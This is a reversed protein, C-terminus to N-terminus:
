HRKNFDGFFSVLRAGRAGGGAQARQWRELDAIRRVWLLNTEHIEKKLGEFRALLDQKLQNLDDHADALLSYREEWKRELEEIDVVHALDLTLPPSEPLRATDASSSRKTRGGDRLGEIEARLEKRWREARELEITLRHHLDGFKRELNAATATSANRRPRRATKTEKHAKKTNMKSGAEPAAM